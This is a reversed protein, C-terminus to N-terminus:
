QFKGGFTPKYTNRIGYGSAVNTINNMSDQQAFADKMQGAYTGNYNAAQPTKGGKALLMSTGIQVPLGTLVRALAAQYGDDPQYQNQLAVGQASFSDGLDARKRAQDINFNTNYAQNQQSIQQNMFQRAYQEAATKNLGADLAKALAQQYIQSVRQTQLNRGTRALNMNLNSGLKRQIGSTDVPGIPLGATSGAGGLFSQLGAGLAKSRSSEIGRRTAGTENLIGINRTALLDDLGQEGRKKEELFDRIAM